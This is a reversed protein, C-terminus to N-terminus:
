QDPAIAVSIITLNGDGITGILSASGSGLDIKYLVSASGNPALAAYADGNRQEIDFGADSGFETGLNGITHLAGTDASDTTSDAADGIQVLSQTTTDLGYLTTGSAGAADPDYAIGALQPTMGFGADGTAFAVPAATALLGGDIPSVRLNTEVAIVRLQDAVPDVAMIVDPLVSPDFVTSSILTAIGSAPDVQCVENASTVGYLLGDAPRFKIHVLSQGSPLGSVTVTNTVNAPTKTDFAVLDGTSSLGYVTYKGTTKPCAALGLAALVVALRILHRQM